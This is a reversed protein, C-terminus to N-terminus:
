TYSCQKLLFKNRKSRRLSYILSRLKLMKKVRLDIYAFINFIVLLQFHAIEFLCNVFATGKTHYNDFSEHVLFVQRPLGEKKSIQTKRGDEFVSYCRINVFHTAKM